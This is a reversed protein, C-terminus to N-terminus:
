LTMKSDSTNVLSKDTLITSPLVMVLNPLLITVTLSVLTNTKILQVMSFIIPPSFLPDDITNFLKSVKCKIFQVM